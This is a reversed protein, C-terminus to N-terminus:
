NLKTNTLPILGHFGVLLGHGRWLPMGGGDPDFAEDANAVAVSGFYGSKTKQACYDIIGEINHPLNAEKVPYRVGRVVAYHFEGDKGEFWIQPDINPDSVSSDVKCGEKELHDRVIQIAFDQLEWDSMEILEDSVLDLPSVTEGTEAHTLGWGGFKPEWGTRTRQMVMQCPIGKGIEAATFTAELKSPKKLEGQDDTVHIFFIQNGLRFSLHELFPPTLNARFFNLADHEIQSQLHKGASQWCRVFDDTVENMPIPYQKTM